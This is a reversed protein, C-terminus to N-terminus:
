IEPGHLTKKKKKKQGTKVRGKKRKAGEERQSFGVSGKVCNKRNLSTKM